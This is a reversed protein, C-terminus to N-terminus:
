VPCQMSVIKRGLPVKGFIFVAPHEWIQFVLYLTAGL